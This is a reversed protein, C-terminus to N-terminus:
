SDKLIGKTNAKRGCQSAITVVVFIGTLETADVYTGVSLQLFLSYRVSISM